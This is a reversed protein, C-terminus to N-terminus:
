NKAAQHFDADHTTFHRTFWHELRIGLEVSDIEEANEFADMIDRLEGLLHEHDETHEQHRRYNMERMLKEEETFHASIERLLEDFFAPVTQRCDPADLADHLRNIAEILSRHEDDVAAIGVSYEPKWVLLRM